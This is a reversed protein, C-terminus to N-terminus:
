KYIYQQMDASNVNDKTFFQFGPILKKAPAVKQSLYKFGADV